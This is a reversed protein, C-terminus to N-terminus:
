IKGLGQIQNMMLGAMGIVGAQTIADIRQAALENGCSQILATEAQCLMAVETQASRIISSAAQLKMTALASEVETAVSRVLGQNQVQLIAKGTPTRAFARNDQGLSMLGGGLSGNYTQLENM